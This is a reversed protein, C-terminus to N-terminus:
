EIWSESQFRYGCKPCVDLNEEVEKRLLQANCNYCKVWLKGISDDIQADQNRRAIQMEKRQEFWDKVTM